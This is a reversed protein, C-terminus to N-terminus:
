LWFTKYIEKSKDHGLVRYVQKALTFVMQGRINQSNRSPQSYKPETSRNPKYYCPVLGPRTKKITYTLEYNCFPPITSFGRSMALPISVIIFAHFLCHCYLSNCTSHHLHPVMNAVAVNSAWFDELIYAVTNQGTHRNACKSKVNKMIRKHTDCQLTLSNIYSRHCCQLIYSLTIIAKTWLGEVYQFQGLCFTFEFWYSETWIMRRSWIDRDNKSSLRRGLSTAQGRLM